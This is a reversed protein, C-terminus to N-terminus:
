MLEIRDSFSEKIVKYAKGINDDKMYIKELLKFKDVAM